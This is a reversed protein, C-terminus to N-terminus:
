DGLAAKVAEVYALGTRKEPLLYSSETWENWANIFVANFRPQHEQAQKRALECLRRFKDPTNGVVIPCYPYDHRGTRPDPPFPWPLSPDCRATVDWGMTVIPPNPLATQAMAHWYSQHQEILDDYQMTLNTSVKPTSVINYNGTSTFGADALLGAHDPEGLMGQWHMPPLGRQALRRDITAFLERCAAPGGVQDIFLKPAFLSLFLRGDVRWYNSQTFYHEACYDIVRLADARSHRIPLWSNWPKGFPAPFYDAWHHNAWMLAFKIRGRNPARLFGRELTEEMLRVGSYWYWDVLFVDIGHDAALDIERAQWAPDSEDYLGWSPELPQAHGPFRPQAAKLLEYECWGEGHWANMHDYPHWLPCTIAVVEPRQASPM